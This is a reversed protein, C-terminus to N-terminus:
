KIVAVIRETRYAIWEDALGVQYVRTKFSKFPNEFSIAEMLESQKEFDETGQIFDQMFGFVVPGDLPLYEQYDASKQEELSLDAASHVEESAKHVYCKYGNGLIEAIANLTEEKM